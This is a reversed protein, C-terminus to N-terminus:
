PAKPLTFSFTSGVGETSEVQITGGHAEVIHRAIALGLGTGGSSRSKDSKYFREFIRPLDDPPIGIGTDTVGVKLMDSYPEAFVRIEGGSETFKIANHILNVLVREIGDRVGLADPLSPAVHTNITLGGRTVQAALRAVAKEIVAAVDFPETQMPAEGSEIRSLEGLEEVMQALKDVETNMSDLFEKAVAPDDVAGDHLTEALAKLSSLPTRLEHSINTVFDRRVTELRRLETLDRLFLMCGPEEDLPTASVSLFRKRPGFEVTGTQPERTRLCRQLLDNLEHDRVANVFTQGIAGSAPINLIREAARNILFIRGDSDVVAIGDGM